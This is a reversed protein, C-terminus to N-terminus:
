KEMYESVVRFDKPSLLIFKCGTEHKGGLSARRVWVVKAIVKVFRWPVPLALEIVLHSCLPMFKGSLFRVGRESLDTMVSGAPPASPNDLFWFSIPADTRVRIHKRRDQEMTEM